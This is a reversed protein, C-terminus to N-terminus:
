RMASRKARASPASRSITRAAATRWSASPVVGPPASRALWWREEASKAASIRAASPQGAPRMAAALRRSGDFGFDQEVGVLEIYQTRDTRCARDCISGEVALGKKGYRGGAENGGTFFLGALRVAGIVLEDKLQRFDFVAKKGGSGAVNGPLTVSVQLLKEVAQLGFPIPLHLFIAGM